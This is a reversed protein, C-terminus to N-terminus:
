FSLAAIKSFSLTLTMPMKKFNLVTTSSQPMLKFFIIINCDIVAINNIHIGVYSPPLLKTM